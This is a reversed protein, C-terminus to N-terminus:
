HARASSFRATWDIRATLQMTIFLTLISGITIALGSLGENFLALSFLVLYFFQALAAEVAAFRLGVVLRLYSVTLFMSVLSCLAFALGLPMRDITYAFLLHFAFFAAALFFYNMPHLDIGRISCLIFLVFFYFLLSLPAWMTIREAVPGPQLREPMTMGVGNGAILNRFHWGLQWGGATKREDSPALTQPPFDIADFNTTMLLDFNRIATNSAFQYTWSGIGQSRYGITVETPGFPNLPVRATIGCSNTTYQLARGGVAVHLDDYVGNSAPFQMALMASKAARSRELRYVGEYGVRYTNYWLLGKRRQDLDLNVAIRSADIALDQTQGPLPTAVTFRPATQSQAPGWLSGLVQQQESDAQQTRVALVGTLIWWAMAAGTFIVMLGAIRALM